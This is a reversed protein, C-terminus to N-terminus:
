RETAEFATVLRGIWADVLDEYDDIGPEGKSYLPVIVVLAGTRDAIARPKAPDFYNAALIVQIGQNQILDIIKEVDQATM